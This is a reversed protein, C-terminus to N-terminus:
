ISHGDGEAGFLPTDRVKLEGKAAGSGALHQSQSLPLQM